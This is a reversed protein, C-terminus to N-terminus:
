TQATMPHACMTQLFAQRGGAFPMATAFPSTNQSTNAQQSTAGYPSPLPTSPYPSTSQGQNGQQQAAGFSVLLLVITASRAVAQTLKTGFPGLRNRDFKKRYSFM